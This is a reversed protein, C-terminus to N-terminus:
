AVAVSKLSTLDSLSLSVEREVAGHLKLRYSAPDIQTPIVSWHWRVFFKDNPTFVQNDFDTFATELLPPRSRQLVMTGKQPFDKTLPRAGNGGPFPFDPAAPPGAFASGATLALMASGQALVTRRSPGSM